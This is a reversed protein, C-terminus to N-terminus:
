ADGLCVGADEDDGTSQSLEFVSHGFVSLDSGMGMKGICKSDPLHDDADVFHVEVVNVECFSPVLFDFTFNGGVQLLKAIVRFRNRKHRYRCPFSVVQDGLRFLHSPVFSGGDNLGKMGKGLRLSM